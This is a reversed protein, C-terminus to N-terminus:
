AKFQNGCNLCGYNLRANNPVIALGIIILWSFYKQGGDFSVKLQDSQCSPCAKIDEAASRLTEYTSLIERARSWDNQNIMLRIGAHRSEASSSSVSRHENFLYCAIGESELKGKLVHARSYSHTEYIRRLSM